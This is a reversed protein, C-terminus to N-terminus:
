NWWRTGKKNIPEYGKDALFASIQITKVEQITMM